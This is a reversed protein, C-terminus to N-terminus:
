VYTGILILAASVTFIFPCLKYPLFNVRFGTLTSILALLILMVGSSTLVVTSILTQFDIITIIAVLSGIYILTVGEIIWEMTIIRKNDISIDGFNKVVSRTPFLHAMGWVITLFSGVFLLIQNIM